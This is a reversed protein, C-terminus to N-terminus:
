TLYRLWLQLGAGSRGVCSRSVLLVLVQERHADWLAELCAQLLHRRLQASTRWGRPIVPYRDPDREQNWSHMYLLQINAKATQKLLWRRRMAEAPWRSDHLQTRRGARNKFICHVLLLNVYNYSGCGTFIYQKEKLSCHRNKKLILVKSSCVVDM